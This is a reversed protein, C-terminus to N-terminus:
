HLELQIPLVFRSRVPHGNAEAPIWPPMSLLVRIAEKGSGAGIDKLVKLDTLAGSPEVIFSMVLRTETLSDLKIGEPLTFNQTFFKLLAMEGGPFSPIKALDYPEYVKEALPEMTQASLDKFILSIFLLLFTRVLM